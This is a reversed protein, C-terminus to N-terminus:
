SVYRILPKRLEGAAKFAVEGACPDLGTRDFRWRSRPLFSLGDRKAHEDQGQDGIAGHRRRDLAKLCIERTLAREVDLECPRVASLDLHGRTVHVRRAHM